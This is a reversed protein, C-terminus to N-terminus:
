PLPQIRRRPEQGALAYALDRFTVLCGLRHQPWLLWRAMLVVGTAQFSLGCVGAALDVGPVGWRTMLLMVGIPVVSLFFVLVGALPLVESLAPVRGPALRALTAWLGRDYGRLYGALPTGPTIRGSDAGRRALEARVTLFAGAPLCDGGVHRWPRIVPRTIRAAVYECVQRVTYRDLRDPERGEEDEALHLDFTELLAFFLDFGSPGYLRDAPEDAVAAYPPLPPLDGLALHHEARLAGFLDFVYEPTAPAEATPYEATM